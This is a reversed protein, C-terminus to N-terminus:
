GFAVDGQSRGGLTGGRVYEGLTGGQVYAGLKQAYAPRQPQWGGGQYSTYASLRRPSGYAYASIGMRTLGTFAGSLQPIYPQLAAPLYDFVGFSRMLGVGSSIVTIQKILAGNDKSMLGSGKNFVYMSLARAGLYRGVFKVIGTLSAPIAIPVAAMVKDVLVGLGNSAMFAGMGVVATTGEKMMEGSNPLLRTASTATAELALANRRRRGGSSRRRRSRIRGFHIMASGGRRSISPFSFKKKVSRRKVKRYAKSRALVGAYNKKRRSGRRRRKPNTVMFAKGFPNAVRLMPNRRLIVTTNAGAGAGGTVTVNGRTYAHTATSTRTPSRVETRTSTPSRVSSDAGGGRKSGRSVEERKRRRAKPM